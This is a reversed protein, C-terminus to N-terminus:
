GYITIPESRRGDGLLNSGYVTVNKAISNPCDSSSFEFEHSCPDGVCSSVLITASACTVGSYSDTYVITYSTASGNM